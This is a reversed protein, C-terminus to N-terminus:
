PKTIATIAASISAVHMFANQDVTRVLFNLREYAKITVNETEFNSRNEYAFEIGVGPRAYVTGKTSDMIYFENQPVLLNDVLLMGDVYTDGNVNTFLTTYLMPTKAYNKIDDKIFKLMQLDHPNLFVVNPNYMNYQGFARIQAGAVSILDILNAYPVIAAYDASPDASAAAFTSAYKKISNPNPSIGDALLLNSDIKLSLSEKLLTNIEGAVFNYDDMMDLCVDIFDRVKLVAVQNVAFTVKTNSSTVGCLAVNKADRVVTAQDNFKIYETSTTQNKLLERVFPKRVPLKGIRGGEHWTFYADRGAIDTSTETAKYELNLAGSKNQTFAKIKEKNEMVLELVSGKATKDNVKSEKLAKLELIAKNVEESLTKFDGNTKIDVSKGELAAIKDKFTKVELDTDTKYKTIIETTESKVKTLFETRLQEDTKTDAGAAGEGLINVFGSIHPTIHPMAQAGIALFLAIFLSVPAFALFAVAGYMAASLMNKRKTQAVKFKKM